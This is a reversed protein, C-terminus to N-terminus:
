RRLHAILATTNVSVQGGVKRAEIQRGAASRGLLLRGQEKM